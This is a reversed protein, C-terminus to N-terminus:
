AGEGPEFIRPVRKETALVAETLAEPPYGGTFVHRVQEVQQLCDDLPKHAVLQCNPAWNLNLALEDLSRVDRKRHFKWPVDLGVDAYLTELIDFDFSGRSWFLQAGSCFVNLARLASEVPYRNMTNFNWERAEQSQGTWWTVTGVDITRDFQQQEEMDLLMTMKDDADNFEDFLCAGFSVVVANNLVGLTEIDIMVWNPAM